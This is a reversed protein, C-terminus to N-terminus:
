CVFIAYVLHKSFDLRFQRENEFLTKNETTQQKKKKLGKLM